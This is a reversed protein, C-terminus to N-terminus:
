GCSRDPGEGAPSAGRIGVTVVSPDSMPRLEVTTAAPQAVFALPAGTSDVVSTTPGAVFPLTVTGAAESADPLWCHAWVADRWATYRVEHGEASRGEPRIWPRTGVVAREHAPAREEMWGLRTLQEEPIRADIGRPGVNLLLNGGKAAIDVISRLLEDRTLYDAEVSTRNYGFGKDMGRVCEWPTREIRPFSAFEPTRYQFFRPKPPVLEGGSAAREMALDILKRAPATKVVGMGKVPTLWRDNVVGDPVQRYYHTLLDMLRRHPAPWAIDNWLVAPRYRDILERVQAEAYEPYTGGPLAALMDAFTGIPRPEFTWDLGGSYYLGFRMGHRRVAEALEGVLDRETHWGPRNPNAVATPWLCYGDHHKAVFVVYGAGTAAFRRAWDDPDWRDLAAVFPDVYTEYPRGGEHERHFASAPSEPFRISNQYWEAYPSFAWPHREGSAQLRTVDHDTPAFAPVAFLGWHVFIGLKADAWWAPVRSRRARLDADVHVV